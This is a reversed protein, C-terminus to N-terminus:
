IRVVVRGRVKGQMLAHAKEIAQDLPVVQTITALTVPDLDVSLRRWAEQRAALPAMVSDIGVLAVGRLIFPMVTGPLDFGQALGCAAVVGGYRTQALANALTHSGVADVVAAWREKQLPKGPGSLDARDLVESAGLGRLYAAEAPRGTAAVVRHGLKGLIAVAVSGVGGTAGTVLVEGDDPRLGHRELALVCLMATYGATGIAMAQASSFAEPLAVLWDGMLRATEALCGWRTEGVGWGNHIFRDGPKWRAHSSELVVGAGDIGAVMPWSRVVPSKNTIALGDKYNLTSHEIRVLVDGAPLESEDVSQLSARFGADSKELLVAKFM